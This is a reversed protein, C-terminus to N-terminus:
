SCRGTACHYRCFGYVHPRTTRAERDAEGIWGVVPGMMTAADALVRWRLRVFRYHLSDPDRFMIMMMWICHMGQYAHKWLKEQISISSIPQLYSSPQTRPCGRRSQPRRGGGGYGGRAPSDGSRWRRGEEGVWV